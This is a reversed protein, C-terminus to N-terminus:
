VTDERNVAARMYQVGSVHLVLASHAGRGSDVIHIHNMIHYHLQNVMSERFQLSKVGHPLESRHREPPRHKSLEIAGHEKHEKSQPCSEAPCSPGMIDKMNGKAKPQRSGSEDLGDTVDTSTVDVWGNGKGVQNARLHGQETSEEVDYGLTKSCQSAGCHEIPDCGAVHPSVNVFHICDERRDKLQLWTDTQAHGGGHLHEEGQLENDADKSHSILPAIPTHTRSGQGNAKRHEHSM